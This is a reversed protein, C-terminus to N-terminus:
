HRFEDLEIVKSEIVKLSYDWPMAEEKFLDMSEDILERM